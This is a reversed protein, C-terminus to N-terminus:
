TGGLHAPAMWVFVGAYLADQAESSAAVYAFAEVAAVLAEPLVPLRVLLEVLGPSEITLGGM